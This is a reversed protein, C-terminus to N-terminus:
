PAPVEKQRFIRLEPDFEFDDASLKTLSDAAEEWDRPMLLVPRLTQVLTYNRDKRSNPSRFAMRLARLEGARLGLELHHNFLAQDEQWKERALAELGPRLEEIAWLMDYTSTEPHHAFQELLLPYTGPDRLLAIAQVASYPLYRREALMSVLTERVDSEWGRHVLISALEPHRPLFDVLLNLDDPTIVSSIADLLARESHHGAHALAEFLPELNKQGIALLRLYAPDGEDIQWRSTDDIIRVVASADSGGPDEALPELAKLAARYAVADMQLGAPHGMSRLHHRLTLSSLRATDAVIGKWDFRFLHLRANEFFANDFIGIFESPRFDFLMLKEPYGTLHGRATGVSRVTALLADERDRNTVLAFYYHRLSSANRMRLDQRRTFLREPLRTRLAFNFSEALMAPPLMLTASFDQSSVKAGDRFPLDALERIEACGMDIQYLLDVPEDLHQRLTETMAWKGSASIRERFASGWQPAFVTFEGDLLRLLAERPTNAALYFDRFGSRRQQQSPATLDEGDTLTAGTAVPFIVLNNPLPTVRLGSEVTLTETRSGSENETGLLVRIQYPDIEVSSENLAKAVGPPPTRDPQLFNLGPLSYALAGILGIMLALRWPLGVRGPARGQWFVACAAVLAAGWSLLLYRAALSGPEEMVRELLPENLWGMGGLTLALCLIAVVAGGLLTRGLHRGDRSLGAWFLFFAVIPTVLLFQDLMGGVALGFGGGHLLSVTLSALMLPVVIIAIIVILKAAWIIGFGVPRTQIFGNSNSPSDALGVLLPLILGASLLLNISSHSSFQYGNNTFVETTRGAGRMTFVIVVGLWLAALTNHQVLEKRIQHLLLTM